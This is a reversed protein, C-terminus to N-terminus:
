NISLVSHISENKKWSRMFDDYQEYSLDYLLFVPNKLDEGLNLKEKYYKEYYSYNSDDDYIHTILEMLNKFAMPAVPLISVAEEIKEFAVNKLVVIFSCSSSNSVFNFRIKM